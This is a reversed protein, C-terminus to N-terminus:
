FFCLRCLFCSFFICFLMVAFAVPFAHRTHRIGVSSFYVSIIYVVTDSSGFIVSACLGAFSDAGVQSLLTSYGATSASGSFPRTLLLPLIETPLGIADAAPSLLSAVFDVAGSANLMAVAVMLASLTPLLGVATQLGERAGTVFAAFYDRKGFLMLLGAALVVLPMALSSIEEIM